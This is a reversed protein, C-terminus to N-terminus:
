FHMWALSSLKVLYVFHLATFACFAITFYGSINVRWSEKKPLNYKLHIYSKNKNAEGQLQRGIMFLVGCVVPLVWRTFRMFILESLVSGLLFYILISSLKYFRKLDKAYKGEVIYISVYYIVFATVLFVAINVLYLLELHLPGGGENGEVKGAISQIFSNNTKTSLFKIGAGGIALGFILGYKMFNGSTNLTIETLIIFVVFIIGASHTLCALIYGLVCLPIHKREVLHVYACALIVAFALGNRIGALVDYFWYTSIFFMLGLFLNKKDVEFRKAAKYFVMLMLGYVVFITIAQLYHNSPLKSIFYFYYGCVRYVDWDNIGEDFCRQLYDNGYDRLYDIQQYYRTLDDSENPVVNFALVSLLITLLLFSIGFYKKPLLWYTVAFILIIVVFSTVASLGFFM